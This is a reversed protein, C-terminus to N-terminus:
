CLGYYHLPDTFAPETAEKQRGSTAVFGPNVSREGFGDADCPASTSKVLQVRLLLNRLIDDGFLL